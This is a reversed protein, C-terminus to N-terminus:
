LFLVPLKSQPAEEGKERTIVILMLGNMTILLLCHFLLQVLLCSLIM